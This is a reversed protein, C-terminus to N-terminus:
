NRENPDYFKNANSPTSAQYQNRGKFPPFRGSSNQVSQLPNIYTSAEAGSSDGGSDDEDDGSGKGTANVQLAPPAQFQPPQQQQQHPNVLGVGSEGSMSPTMNSSQNYFRQSPPGNKNVQPGFNIVHGYGSPTASVGGPGGGGGGAQIRSNITSMSMSMMPKRLDDLDDLLKFYERRNVVYTYFEFGGIFFGLIAMVINEVFGSRYWGYMVDHCGRTNIVDTRDEHLFNNGCGYM